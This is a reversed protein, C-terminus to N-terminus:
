RLIHRKHNAMKFISNFDSRITKGLIAYEVPAASAGITITQGGATVSAILGELLGDLEFTETNAFTAGGMLAQYSVASELKDVTSTSIGNLDFLVSNVTTNIIDGFDITLGLTSAELNNFTLTDKVGNQTSIANSSDISYNGAYTLTGSGLQINSDKFTVKKARSSTAIDSTLSYNAKEITASRLLKDTVNYDEYVINGNEDFVVQGNDDLEVVQNQSALAIETNKADSTYAGLVLQAGNVTLGSNLAVTQSDATTTLYTLTAGNSVSAKLNSLTNGHVRLEGGTITNNSAFTMKDAHAITLGASQNFYSTSGILDSEHTYYGNEMKDGLILTGEGTKNTVAWEQYIGGDLSGVEGEGQAFNIIANGRNYIDNGYGTGGTAINESFIFNDNFTIIPTEATSGGNHIAGGHGTGTKSLVINGTFTATGNFTMTALNSNLIAGGSINYGTDSFNRVANGSFIVDKNFTTSASTGGNSIVGGSRNTSNNIFAANVDFTLTSPNSFATAGYASANGPITVTNDTFLLLPDTTTNTNVFTLNGIGSATAGQMKYVGGNSTSNIGTYKLNKGDLDITTPVVIITQAFNNENKVVTDLESSPTLTTEGLAQTSLSVCCFAMMNLLFCKKLINLYRKKLEKITTRSMNM